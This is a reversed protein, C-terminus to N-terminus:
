EKAEQKHQGTSDTTNQANDSCDPCLGDEGGCMCVLKDKSRNKHVLDTEFTKGCPEFKAKNINQSHIICYRKKGMMVDGCYIEKGNAICLLARCYEQKIM